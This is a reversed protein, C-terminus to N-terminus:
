PRANLGDENKTQILPSLSDWPDGDSTVTLM